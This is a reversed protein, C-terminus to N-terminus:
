SRYFTGSLSLLQLRLGLCAAELGVGPCVTTPPKEERWMETPIAPLPAPPLDVMAQYVPDFASVPHMVGAKSKQPNWRLYKEAVGLSILPSFFTTALYPLQSGEENLSSTILLCEVYPDKLCQFYLASFAGGEHHPHELLLLFVILWSVFLVIESQWLDM